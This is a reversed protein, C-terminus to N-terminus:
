PRTYDKSMTKNAMKSRTRLAGYGSECVSKIKDDSWLPRGPQLSTDLLTPLPATKPADDLMSCRRPDLQPSSGRILGPASIASIHGSIALRYDSELASLSNPTIAPRKLFSSKRDLYEHTLQCELLVVSQSSERIPLLISVKPIRTPQWLLEPM